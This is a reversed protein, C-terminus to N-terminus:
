WGGFEGLESFQKETMEVISLGYESGGEGEQALSKLEALAVNLDQFACSDGDMLVKYIKIKKSM